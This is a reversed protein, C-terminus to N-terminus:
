TLMQLISWPFHCCEFSVSDLDLVLGVCSDVYIVVIVSSVSCCDHKLLWITSMSCHLSFELEKAFLLSMQTYTLLGLM